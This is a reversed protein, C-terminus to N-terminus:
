RWDDLRLEEIRRFERANSTVLTAGSALTTAAIVLDHPGIPQQRLRWRLEAHLQAARQGFPLVHVQDLFRFVEARNRGVDASAVAGYLLEAM